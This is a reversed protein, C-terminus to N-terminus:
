FLVHTALLGTGAVRGSVTRCFETAELALEPGGDGQRYEGGAPGGLRLQVPQGHREAWERVIDAVLRRDAEADLGPDLDAARAIDIRHMLVDRTVIVDNLHGLTIRTPLGSPMNGAAPIPIPLARLPRPLGVRARVASPAVRRLATLKAAPDLHAHERVQVDNMADLASGGFRSAGRGGHVFQRVFEPLSAHGEAAGLLHGVVDDVTWGDCDTPRTWDQPELQELLRFLQTYVSTALASADAGRAVPRIESVPVPATM